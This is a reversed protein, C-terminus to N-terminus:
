GIAWDNARMQFTWGSNRQFFIRGGQVQVPTTEAPVNWLETLRKAFWPRVPNKAMYARTVRNEADVWKHLSQDRLNEMWRYPDPM